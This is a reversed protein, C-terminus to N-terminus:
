KKRKKKLAIMRAVQADHLADRKEKQVAFELEVIKQCASDPCILTTHTLVSSMGLTTVTEKWTKSVIRMQGCRICPYGASVHM